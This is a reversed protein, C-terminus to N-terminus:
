RAGFNATWYHRWTSGPLPYYGIGVENYGGNMIADCHGTTSSM